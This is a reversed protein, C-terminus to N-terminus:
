GIIGTLQLDAILTGLTDAIEDLTTANADYARDTTVNTISYASSRAVPTVGYFGVTSGDHDLAGDLECTSSIQVKSGDLLIPYANSNTDIQLGGGAPSYINAQRSTGGASELRIYGQAVAGEGLQLSVGADLTATVSGVARIGTVFTSGASGFKVYDAVAAVGFFLDGNRAFTQWLNSSAGTRYQFAARATASSSLNDVRHIIETSTGIQSVLVGTPTILLSGSSDTQLDTYVSGDTYTLRLQPNSADLVDLRRDPGSTNIGLFGGSAYLNTATTSNYLALLAASQDWFLRSAGTLGAAFDGSAAADTATGVNALDFYGASWKASSSGLSITDDAGPVVETPSGSLAPGIVIANSANVGIIGIDNSDSANRGSIYRANALRVGTSSDAEASTGAGIFLVENLWIDKVKNASGGLDYVGSSEPRINDAGVSWVAHSGYRFYWRASTAQQRIVFYVDRPTGTGAEESGIELVNSAWRFVGREYNSSDTYTNYVYIGNSDITLGDNGNFGGGAATVIKFIDSDSNDGGVIWSTGGLIDFVMYPDGTTTQMQVSANSTGSVTDDNRVQFLYTVSADSGSFHMENGQGAAITVKLAGDFNLQAYAADLYGLRLQPDTGETIHVQATPSATGFGFNGTGSYWSNGAVNINLDGNGGSDYLILSQASQDFFLRCAGTLGFVADGATTADTATGVELVIGISVSGSATLRQSATSYTLDADDRLQGNTGAIVIRNVTLDAIAIGSSNFTVEKTGNISVYFSGATDWYFGTDTDGAWRIGPASASGGGFEYVGGPVIMAMTVRTGGIQQLELLAPDVYVSAKDFNVMEAYGGSIGGQNWNPQQVWDESVSKEPTTTYGKM